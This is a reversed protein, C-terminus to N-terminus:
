PSTNLTHSSPPSFLKVIHKPTFPSSNKYIMYGHMVRLIARFIAHIHPIIRTLCPSNSMAFIYFLFNLIHIFILITYLIYHRHPFHPCCFEFLTAAALLFRGRGWNEKTSCYINISGWCM